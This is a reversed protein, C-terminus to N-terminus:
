REEAGCTCFEPPNKCDACYAGGVGIEWERKEGVKVIALDAVRECRDCREATICYTTLMEPHTEWVCRQCYSQTGRGKAPPFGDAIADWAANMPNQTSM